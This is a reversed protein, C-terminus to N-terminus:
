LESSQNVIHWPIMNIRAGVYYLPDEPGNPKLTESGNEPDFIGHGLKKFDTITINYWHNRVVGYYGEVQKSEANATAALHEIPLYYVTHGGTARTLGTTEVRNALNNDADAIATWTDKGEANKSKAYLTTGKALNLVLECKGLDTGEKEFTLDQAGVQRYKTTETGDEATTTGDALWYNLGAASNALTSLIYDKFAKDTYYLGRYNVLDVPTAIKEGAANESITCVVTHIVAHTAFRSDILPTATETKQTFIHGIKDGALVADNTNENCYQNDTAEVAKLQAVTKYTIDTDGAGENPTRGYSTGKGWYSRWRAPANWDAFPANNAWNLDLQKCLYSKNSTANLAWGQVCVYLDSTAAPNDNEDGNGTGAVSTELKYFNYTKGDLKATVDGDQASYTQDFKVNVKAALREVYVDVPYTDQAETVTTKFNDSELVTVYYSDVNTTNDKDVHNNNTTTGDNFYSTTSMVFYETNTTGVTNVYSYDYLSEATAKLTSKPEFDKANLVTLMYKPYGSQTLKDLVLINSSKFEIKNNASPGNNEGNDSTDPTMTPAPDYVSADMVYNGNEDFFYFKAGLVDKENALTADQFGGSAAARTDSASQIRVAMYAVDGAPQNGNEGGLAPEDSSCSALMAVAAVGMIHKFYKNMENKFLQTILKNIKM